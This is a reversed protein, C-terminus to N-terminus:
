TAEELKFLIVYGARNEQQFVPTAIVAHDEWMVYVCYTIIDQLSSLGYRDAEWYSMRVFARDPRPQFVRLM